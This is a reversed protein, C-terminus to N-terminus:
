DETEEWREPTIQSYKPEAVAKNVEMHWKEGPTSQAFRSNRVTTKGVFLRYQCYLSDLNLKLTLDAWVGIGYPKRLM